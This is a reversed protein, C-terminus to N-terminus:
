HPIERGRSTELSPGGTGKGQPHDGAGCSHDAAYAGCGSDADEGGRYAAKDQGGLASSLTFIDYIHSLQRKQRVQRARCSKMFNRSINVPLVTQLLSAVRM